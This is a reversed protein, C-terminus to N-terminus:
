FSRDFMLYSNSLFCFEWMRSLGTSSEFMYGDKLQGFEAAKGSATFHMVLYHFPWLHGLFDFWCTFKSVLLLWFCSMYIHPLMLCFLYIFLFWGDTCSLEPNMGPNAKVVRVYLLTGIQLVVCKCSSFYQLLLCIISILWDDNEVKCFDLSLFILTSVTLTKLVVIM